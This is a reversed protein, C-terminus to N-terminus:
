SLDLLAYALLLLERQRTVRETEHKRRHDTILPPNPRRQSAWTSISIKYYAIRLDMVINMEYTFASYVYQLKIRIGSLKSCITGSLM